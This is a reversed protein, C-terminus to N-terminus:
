GAARAQDGVPTDQLPKLPWSLEKAVLDSPWQSGRRLVLGQLAPVPWNLARSPKSRTRSRFSVDGGRGCFMWVRNMWTGTSYRITVTHLKPQRVEVDIWGM